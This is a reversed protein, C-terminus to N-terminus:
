IVPVFDTPDINTMTLELRVEAEVEIFLLKYFILIKLLKKAALIKVTSKFWAKFQTDM